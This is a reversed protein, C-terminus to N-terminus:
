KRDKRQLWCAVIVWFVAVWVSVRGVDGWPISVIFARLTWALIGACALTIVCYAIILTKEITMVKKRELVDQNEDVM